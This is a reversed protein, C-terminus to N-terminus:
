QNFYAPELVPTVSLAKQVKNEPGSSKALDIVLRTTARSKEPTVSLAKQV